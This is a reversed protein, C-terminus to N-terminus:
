VKISEDIIYDIFDYIMFAFAGLMFVGVSLKFHILISAWIIGYVISFLIKKMM